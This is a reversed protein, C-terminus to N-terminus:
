APRAEQARMAADYAAKVQELAEAAIALAVQIADYAARERAAAAGQEAKRRAERALAAERRLTEARLEGFLREAQALRVARFIRNGAPMDGLADALAPGDLEGGAIARRVLPAAPHPHLTFYYWRLIPERKFWLWLLVAAPAAFLAFTKLARLFAHWAHRVNERARAREAERVAAAEADLTARRIEAVREAAQQDELARQQAQEARAQAEAQAEAARAQDEAAQAQSAAQEQDAYLDVVREWANFNGYFHRAEALLVVESTDTPRGYLDVHDIDGVFYPDGAITRVNSPCASWARGIAETLIASLVNGDRYGLGPKGLTVRVFRHRPDADPCQVDYSVQGVTNAIDNASANSDGRQLSVSLNTEARAFSPLAFLLAALAVCAARGM